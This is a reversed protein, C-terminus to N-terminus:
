EDTASLKKDVCDFIKKRLKHIAKRIAYISRGTKTAIDDATLNERYFQQYIKKLTDPLQTCCSELHQWKREHAVANTEIISLNASFEDLFDDSLGLSYKNQKRRFALVRNFAITNAWKTFNTGLEFTEFERWLTLCTEQFIDDADTSNSVYAYIYCYLRKKDADFLESFTAIKEPSRGKNSDVSELSVNKRRLLM